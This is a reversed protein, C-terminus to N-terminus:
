FYYKHIYLLLYIEFCLFRAANKYTNAHLTKISSIVSIHRIIANCYNYFGGNVRYLVSRLASITRIRRKLITYFVNLSVEIYCAHLARHPTNQKVAGDSLM